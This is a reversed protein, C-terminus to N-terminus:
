EKGFPLMRQFVRDKDIILHKFAAVLHLLIVFIFLFAGLAHMVHFVKTVGESSPLLATLNFLGFPRVDGNAYTAAHLIGLTPQYIMLGYLVRTNIEAFKKQKDTMTDPLAPAPNNRRWIIRFIVLALILLGIGTHGMLKELRAPGEVDELGLGFIIAVIILLALIWHLAKATGTFARKDNM